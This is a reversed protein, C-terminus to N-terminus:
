RIRRALATNRPSAEIDYEAYLLNYTMNRDRLCEEVNNDATSPQGDKDKIATLRFCESYDNFSHSSLGPLVSVTTAAVRLKGGASQAQGAENGLIQGALVEENTTIKRLYIQSVVANRGTSFAGDRCYGGVGLKTSGIVSARSLAFLNPQASDYCFVLEDDTNLTEEFYGYMNQSALRVRVKNPNELDFLAADSNNLLLNGVQTTTSLRLNLLSERMAMTGILTILLLVILVMILTSGQQYKM